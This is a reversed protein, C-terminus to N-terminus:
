VTTYNHREFNWSYQQQLIYNLHSFLRLIFDEAYSALVYRVISQVM